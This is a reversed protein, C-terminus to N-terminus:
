RSQGLVPQILFEASEVVVLGVRGIREEGRSVILSQDDRQVAVARAAGPADVDPVRLTDADEM